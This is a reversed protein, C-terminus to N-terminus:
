YFTLWYVSCVSYSEDASFEPDYDDDSFSGLQQNELEANYRALEENDQPINDEHEEQLQRLRALTSYFAKKHSYTNWEAGGQIHRARQL